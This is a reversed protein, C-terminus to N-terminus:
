IYFAMWGKKAVASAVINGLFTWVLTHTKLLRSEKGSTQFYKSIHLPLLLTKHITIFCLFTTTLMIM